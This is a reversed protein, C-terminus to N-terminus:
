KSKNKDDLSSSAMNQNTDKSYISVPFLELQECMQCCDPTGCNPHEEKTKEPLPEGRRPYREELTPFRHLDM